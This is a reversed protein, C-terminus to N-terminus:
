NQNTTEEKGDINITSRTRRRKVILNKKNNKEHNSEENHQRKRGANDPRRKEGESCSISDPRKTSNERSFRNSSVGAATNQPEEKERKNKGALGLRRKIRRQRLFIKGKSCDGDRTL